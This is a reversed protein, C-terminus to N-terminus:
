KMLCNKVRLHLDIIFATRSLIITDNWQHMVYPCGAKSMSQRIGHKRCFNVFDYSAFQVGQDSHLM